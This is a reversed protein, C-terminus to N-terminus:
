DAREIRVVKGDSITVVMPLSGSSPRYTWKETVTKGVVRSATGRGGARVDEATAEKGVPEGCKELLEGLTMPAKVVWNGCRMSEDALASGCALVLVAMSSLCALRM